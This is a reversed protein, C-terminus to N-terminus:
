LHQLMLNRLSQGKVLHAGMDRHMPFLYDEKELAFASGAATAENGNGTYAGGVIKGQRYLKLISEEFERTLKMFYYLQLYQEKTLGFSKKKISQVKKVLTKAM